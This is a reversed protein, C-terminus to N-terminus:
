NLFFTRSASSISSPIIGALKNKEATTYNNDTHVYSGDSVINPDAPQYVGDHNHTDLANKIISGMQKFISDAM